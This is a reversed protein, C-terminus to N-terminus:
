VHARGIQQSWAITSQGDQGDSWQGWTPDATAGSGGSHSWHPGDYWNAGNKLQITFTWRNSDGYPRVLGPEQHTPHLCDIPVIQQVDNAHAPVVGLFFIVATFLYLFHKM